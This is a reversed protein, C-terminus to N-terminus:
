KELPLKCLHEEWRSVLSTMVVLLVSDIPRLYELSVSLLSTNSGLYWGLSSEEGNRTQIRKTTGHSQLSDSNYFKFLKGMTVSGTLLSRSHSNLFDRSSCRRSLRSM